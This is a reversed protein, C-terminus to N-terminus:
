FGTQFTLSPLVSFYVTTDANQLQANFNQILGLCWTLLGKEAV